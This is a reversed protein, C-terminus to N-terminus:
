QIYSFILITDNTFCFFPLNKKNLEEGAKSNSKIMYTSILLYRM